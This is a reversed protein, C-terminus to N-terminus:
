KSPFHLASRLRGIAEFANKIDEDTEQMRPDENSIFTKDFENAESALKLYEAVDELAKAATSMKDQAKKWLRESKKEESEEKLLIDENTVEAEKCEEKNSEEEVVDQMEAVEDLEEEVISDAEFTENSEDTKMETGTADVGSVQDLNKVNKTNLSYTDDANYALKAKKEDPKEWNVKLVDGIKALSDFVCRSFFKAENQSYGFQVGNMGDVFEKVTTGYAAAIQKKFLPLYKAFM